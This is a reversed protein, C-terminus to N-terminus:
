LYRSCHFACMILKTKIKNFTPSPVSDLYGKITKESYIELLLLQVQGEMQIRGPLSSLPLNIVRFMSYM